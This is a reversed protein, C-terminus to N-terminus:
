ATQPPPELQTPLKAIRNKLEQNEQIVATNQQRLSSNQQTVNNKESRLDTNENVLSKNQVISEAWKFGFYLATCGGAISVLIWLGKNM